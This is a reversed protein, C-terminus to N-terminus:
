AAGCAASRAREDCLFLLVFSAFQTSLPALASANRAVREARDLWITGRSEAAAREGVLEVDHGTSFGMRREMANQLMGPDGEAEKLCVMVSCRKAHAEFARSRSYLFSHRTNNQLSGMKEKQM